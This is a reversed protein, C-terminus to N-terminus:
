KMKLLYNLLKTPTKVKKKTTKMLSKKVILNVTMRSHIPLVGTLDEVDVVEELDLLEPNMMVQSMKETIRQKLCLKDKNTGKQKDQLEKLKSLNNNKKKEKPELFEIRQMVNKILLM